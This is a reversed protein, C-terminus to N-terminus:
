LNKFDEETIIPINKEKAAKNKSSTSNIDNNILYHTKASIASLVKGGREEIEKKLEDRNKYYNLKGTIVFNIDKLDKKISEESKVNKFTLIHSLEDALTFDYDHIADNMADGFGYISTFDFANDIKNRFDEYSNIHKVLEKAVTKGILPIGLASIFSALDVNKKSNNIAILINNVSKEGFGPKNIWLDIISDLHYLDIISGIWGWEVLKELTAKSLGKIDMGKKGCYHDLKNILKGECNENLCILNETGSESREIATSGGCIPCKEPITFYEKNM